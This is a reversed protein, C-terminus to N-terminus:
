GSAVSRPLIATMRTLDVGSIVYQADQFDHQWLSM